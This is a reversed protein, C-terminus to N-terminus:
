ALVIVRVKAEIGLIIEVITRTLAKRGIEVEIVTIRFGILLFWGLGSAVVTEVVGRAHVVPILRYLEVIAEIIVCTPHLM